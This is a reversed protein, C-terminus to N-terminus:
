MKHGGLYLHCQVLWSRSKHESMLLYTSLYIKTDGKYKQIMKKAELIGPIIFEARSRIGYVFLAGVAGAHTHTARREATMEGEGGRIWALM